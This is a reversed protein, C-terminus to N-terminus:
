GFRSLRFPSLDFRTAGATALDALLEGIASAFKFGHGSCPSAVIVQPADPHRDIVFDHDPTNTYLCVRAERLRGAADPLLRALLARAREDEEPTVTRRVREPDTLEGEHHVGIKIGDGLDAFTAVLRGPGYEWLAIPCREPAFAAARARPAFWHFM